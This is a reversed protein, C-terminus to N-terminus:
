IDARGTEDRVADAITAVANEVDASEADRGLDADCFQLLQFLARRYNTTAPPREPVGWSVIEAELAMLQIRESELELAKIGERLAPVAEQRQMWNGGKIWRRAERLPVVVQRRWEQCLADLQGM